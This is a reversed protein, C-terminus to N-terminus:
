GPLIRRSAVPLYPSRISSHKLVMKRWLVPEPLLEVPQPEFVLSPRLDICLVSVIVQLDFSWNNTKFLTEFLKELNSKWSYWQGMFLRKWYREIGIGWYGVIILFEKTM